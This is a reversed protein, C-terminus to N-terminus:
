DWGKCNSTMCGVIRNASMKEPTHKGKFIYRGPISSAAHCVVYDNFLEPWLKRTSVLTKVARLYSLLRGAMHRLESWCKSENMRGERARHRILAEIESKYLHDIYKLLIECHQSVLKINLMSRLFYSVTSVIM